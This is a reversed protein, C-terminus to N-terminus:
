KKIAVQSLSSVEVRALCDTAPGASTKCALVDNLLLSAVNSCEINKLEFMPTKTKHAPIPGFEFAVNRGILGDPLFTVLSVRFSEYATDSNNAFVFYVRCGKVEAQPAGAGAPKEVVDITPDPKDMPMLKNLQLTLKDAAFTSPSPPVVAADAALAPRDLQTVCALAVLAALAARCRFPM